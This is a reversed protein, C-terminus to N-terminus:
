APVGITILALAEILFQLLTLLVTGTLNVETSHVM